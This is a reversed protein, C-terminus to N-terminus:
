MATEALSWRSYGSLAKWVSRGMQRIYRLQEDRQKPPDQSNGHQQIKAGSRPPIIAEVGNRECYDWCNNSDYAGDASVQNVDGDSESQAQSMLDEFVQSDGSSKDTLTSALIEGTKEDICLHLKRWIRRKSYGHQRVKWEGEGFVKLGTSDIVVHVSGHSRVKRRIKINLEAARRCLISPTM